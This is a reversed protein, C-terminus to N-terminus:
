SVIRAPAKRRNHGIRPKKKVIRKQEIETFRRAIAGIMQTNLIQYQTIKKQIVQHLSEENDVTDHGLAHLLDQMHLIRGTLSNQVKHLRSCDPSFAEYEVIQRLAMANKILEDLTHDIDALIEEGSELM